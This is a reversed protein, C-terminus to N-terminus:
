SPSLTRQLCNRLELCATAIIQGLVREACQVLDSFLPFPLAFDFDGHENTVRWAM